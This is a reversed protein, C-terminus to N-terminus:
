KANNNKLILFSKLKRAENNKESIVHLEQSDFSTSGGGDFAMAKQMGWKRTLDALESLNMPAKTTVIFLYVNNDRIGIATRAYKHLASASESIIKGDRVLVFFEDELNLDPFLMPGAQISHKLTYDDPIKDNHRAIDYLINGKSDQLIRFESRNLIKDLFPKIASNNMLNENDEPSAVLKGDIFIYSVTKQNKPDFFGTNVVLKAGTNKYVDSCTELSDSVYPVLRDKVKSSLIQVVYVGDPDQIIRYQSNDRKAYAFNPIIFIFLIIFFISIFKLKM